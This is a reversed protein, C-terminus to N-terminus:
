QIYESLFATPFWVMEALYRLLSGQDIEHGRADAINIFLPLRIYMNGKDEMYMDRAKISLLPFTKMSAVWIFSPPNATFYQEAIFPM